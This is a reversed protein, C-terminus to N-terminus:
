DDFVDTTLGKQIFLFNLHPREEALEAVYGELTAIYPHRAIERLKYGKNTTDVRMIRNYKM